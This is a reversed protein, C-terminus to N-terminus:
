GAGRGGEVHKGGKEEMEIELLAMLFQPMMVMMTIMKMMASHSQWHLKSNLAPMCLNCSGDVDEQPPSHSLRVKASLSKPQLKM